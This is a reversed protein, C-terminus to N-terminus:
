VAEIAHIPNFRNIKNTPPTTTITAPATPTFSQDMATNRRFSISPLTFTPCKARHLYLFRAIFVTATCIATITVVDRAYHLITHIRQTKINRMHHKFKSLPIPQFTIERLTELEKTINVKKLETQVEQLWKNTEGLLPLSVINQAHLVMTNRIFVHSKTHASPCQKTLQLIYVGKITKYETGNDCTIFLQIPKPALLRFTTGSIQTAHSTLETIQVSCTDQIAKINQSFLNYLCLNPLNKSLINAQPCHYVTKIKKCNQLERETFQKAMSKNEDLAIYQKDSNIKLVISNNVFHPSPVYKYLTMLPGKYLPVHIVAYLTNNQFISSTATQFVSTADDTLPQLNRKRAKLIIEHYAIKLKEPDVLLPSLKNNSLDILGNIYDTLETKLQLQALEVDTKMLKVAQEKTMTTDNSIKAYLNDYMQNTINLHHEIRLSNDEVQQAIINSNQTNENVQKIIAAVQKTSFLSMLFSSAGLIAGTVMQTTSRRSRTALTTKIENSEDMELPVQSVMDPQSMMYIMNIKSLLRKMAEKSYKKKNDSYNSYDVTTEVLDYFQNFSQIVSPLELDVVLHGFATESATSGVRLFAINSNSTPLTVDNMSALSLSLFNFILVWTLWQMKTCTYARERGILGNRGATTKKFPTMHSFHGNFRACNISRRIHWSSEPFKEHSSNM